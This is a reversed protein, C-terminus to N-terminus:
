IQPQSGDAIQSRSIIPSKYTQGMIDNWTITDDNVRVLLQRGVVYMISGSPSPSPALVVYATEGVKVSLEYLADTASFTGGSYLPKVVSITAVQYTSPASSSQAFALAPLLLILTTLFFRTM